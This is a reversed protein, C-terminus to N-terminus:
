AAIGSSVAPIQAEGPGVKYGSKTGARGYWEGLRSVEDGFLVDALDLYRQTTTFNTHGAMRIIAM